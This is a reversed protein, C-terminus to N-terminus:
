PGRPPSVARWPLTHAGVWLTMAYHDPLTQFAMGVAPAVLILRDVEPANEAGFTAIATAFRGDLRGHRRHHREPTRPACACGHALGGDDPARRGLRRSAAFPWGRADYAYTAVGHEAFWPGSLYFTNAYDNMGHLGIIVAHAEEGEPPLWATLGLPAGDFSIFREVKAADFRPGSFNELPSAASCRRARRWCRM